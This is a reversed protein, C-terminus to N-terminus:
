NPGMGNITSSATKLTYFADMRFIKLEVTKDIFKKKFKNNVLPVLKVPANKEAAWAKIENGQSKM